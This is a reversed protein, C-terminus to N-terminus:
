RQRVLKSSRVAPTVRELKCGVVKNGRVEFAAPGAALVAQEVTLTDGELTAILAHKAVEGYAVLCGSLAAAEYTTGVPPLPRAHDVVDFTGDAPSRSRLTFKVDDAAYGQEEFGKVDKIRLAFGDPTAVGEFLRGGESKWMGVLLGTSSPASATPKPPPSATAPPVTGGPKAPATGSPLDSTAVAGDDGGGTRFLYTAGVALGAAVAAVALLPVVRAPERRPEAEPPAPIKPGGAFAETRPADRETLPASENTKAGVPEM